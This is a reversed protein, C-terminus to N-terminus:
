PVKPANLDSNGYKLYYGNERVYLEFLGVQFRIGDQSENESIYSELLGKFEDETANTLFAHPRGSKGIYFCNLKGFELEM